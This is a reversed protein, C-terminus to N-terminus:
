QMMHTLDEILDIVESDTENGIYNEQYHNWLINIEQIVQGYVSIAFFLSVSWQDLLKELGQYIAMAAEHLYQNKGNFRSAMGLWDLESYAVIKRIRNHYWAEPPLLNQALIIEIEKNLLILQTENDYQDLQTLQEAISEMSAMFFSLFYNLKIRRNGDM